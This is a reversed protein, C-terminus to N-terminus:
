NGKRYDPAGCLNRNLACRIDEGSRRSASCTACWLCSVIEESRGEKVKRAWHPDCLLQRALATLDCKGEQVATAAIKPDNLKGVAVVPIRVAKRVAAAYPLFPGPPTDRFPFPGIRIARRLGPVRDGIPLTYASVHIADAGARELMAAAEASEETQLGPQLAERGHIRVWVAFGSGQQSKIEEVVELLLRVRNELSGGYQDTRNNTYPSLASGLLYFHAAHLEVGDFGAAEARRAARAFDRRIEGLEEITMPVPATGDILPVSSISRPPHGPVVLAKAGCHLLQLLACAGPERIARALDALGPIFRDDYVGIQRSTMRSDARVPAGEVVITGVGAAARERYYAIQRDSVQDDPEAFNTVMPAMVVRNPAISGGIDVPQFLVRAPDVGTEEM